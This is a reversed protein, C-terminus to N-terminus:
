AVRSRYAGEAAIAAVRTMVTTDSAGAGSAGAVALARSQVLRAQRREELMQRQAAAQSLGAQQELQAAEYDAAARKRQGGIRAAEGQQRYGEMQLVSGVISAGAAAVTAM